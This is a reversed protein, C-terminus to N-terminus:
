WCVLVFSLVFPRVIGPGARTRRHAALGGDYVFTTTTVDLGDDRTESILQSTADYQWVRLTGDERAEQTRNGLPDYTCTFRSILSDDSYFNSM